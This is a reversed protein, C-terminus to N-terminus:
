QLESIDKSIYSALRNPLYGYLLFRPIIVRIWQDGDGIILLNNARSSALKEERKLYLKEGFGRAEEIGDYLTKDKLQYRQYKATESELEKGSYM